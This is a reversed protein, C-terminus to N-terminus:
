HAMCGRAVTVEPTDFLGAGRRCACKQGFVQANTCLSSGFHSVKGGVLFRQKQKKDIQLNQYPFATNQKGCGTTRKLLPFPGVSFTRNRLFALYVFRIIQKITIRKQGCTRARVTVRLPNKKPCFFIGLCRGDELGNVSSEVVGQYGSGELLCRM